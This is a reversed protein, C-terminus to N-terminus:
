TESRRKIAKCLYTIIEKYTRIRYNDLFEISHDDIYMDAYIKKPSETYVDEYKKKNSPANDNVACFHLGYDECWSIASELEKEVRTTWLIVEHGGDICQRITSIMNYNPAGIEPFQNECLIGDFDVAIIM